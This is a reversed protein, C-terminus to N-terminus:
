LSMIDYLFILSSCIKEQLAGRTTVQCNIHEVGARALIHMVGLRDLLEAGEGEELQLSAVNCTIM